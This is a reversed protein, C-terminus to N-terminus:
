AAKMLQMAMEVKEAVHRQDVSLSKLLAKLTPEAVLQSRRGNQRSSNMNFTYERKMHSAQDGVNTRAEIVDLLTPDDYDRFSWRNNHSGAKVYPCEGLNKPHSRWWVMARQADVYSIGAKAALARLSGDFPMVKKLADVSKERKSM